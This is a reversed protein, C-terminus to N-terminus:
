QICHSGYSKDSFTLKKELNRCSLIQDLARTRSYEGNDRGWRLGRSGRTLVVCGFVTGNGCLLFGRGTGCVGVGGDGDSM